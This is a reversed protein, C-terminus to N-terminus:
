LSVYIIYPVSLLFAFKFIMHDNIRGTLLVPSPSASFPRGYKKKKSSM